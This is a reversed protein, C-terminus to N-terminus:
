CHHGKEVTLLHHGCRLVRRHSGARRKGEEEGEGKKRLAYVVASHLWRSWLGGSSPSPAAVAGRAAACTRGSGRTTGDLPVVTTGKSGV